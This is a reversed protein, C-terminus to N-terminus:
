LVSLKLKINQMFLKHCKECQILDKNILETGIKWFWIDIYFCSKKCNHIHKMTFHIQCM